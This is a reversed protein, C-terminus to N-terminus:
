FDAERCQIEGKTSQRATAPSQSLSGHLFPFLSLSFSLSLQQCWFTKAATKLIPKGTDHVACDAVVSQIVTSQLCRWCWCHFRVCFSFVKGLSSFFCKYHMKTPLLPLLLLWVLDCRSLLVDGWASATAAAMLRTTAGRGGQSYNGFM